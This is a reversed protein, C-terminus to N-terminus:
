SPKWGINGMSDDWLTPDIPLPANAEINVGDNVAKVVTGVRMIIRLQDARSYRDFNMPLQSYDVLRELGYLSDEYTKQYPADFDFTLIDDWTLPIDVTPIPDDVDFEAPYGLGEKFAPRPDIVIIRYPHALSDGNASARYPAINDFTSPSEHLYDLEVFVLGSQLLKFRRDRYISADRGGPKNSPSLLEIWAVPEGGQTRKSEFRYIAVANYPSIEEEARVMDPLRVANSAGKQINSARGSSVRSPDTDYITVDSEPKGDPEGLRRIQLSQEAEATYGMPLLQAKLANTLYVIQKTHFADWGGESQFYSHLHANIGRYQNVRSRIEPM